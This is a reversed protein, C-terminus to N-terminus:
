ELANKPQERRIVVASDAAFLERWGPRKQLARHLPGDRPVLLWDIQREDLIQEWGPLARELVFYEGQLLHQFPMVRTDIYHRYGLPGLEYLVFSGWEFPNYMREPQPHRKIWEVASVPFKRNFNEWTEGRWVAQAVYTIVLITVLGLGLPNLLRNQPAMRRLTRSLWVAVVPLGSLGYLPVHRWSSLAATATLFFAFLEVKSRPAKQLIALVIGLAVSEYFWPAMRPSAPLWENIHKSVGRVFPDHELTFEYVEIGYPTCLSLLFSSVLACALKRARVLAQRDKELFREGLEYLTTGALFVIGLLFGLHLNAWVVTIVPFPWVGLSSDRRLRLYLLFFIAFSLFTFLQPRIILLTRSSFAFALVSLLAAWVPAGLEKAVAYAALFLSFVIALCFLELLPLGGLRNLAAFTAAALWGNLYLPNGAGTFSNSELMPIRHEDLIERGMALHFWTDNTFITHNLFLPITLAFLLVSVLLPHPSSDSKM